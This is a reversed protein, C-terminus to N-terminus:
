KLINWSIKSETDKSKYPKFRNDYQISVSSIEDSSESPGCMLWFGIYNYSSLNHSEVWNCFVEKFSNEQRKLELLINVPINYMKVVVDSGSINYIGELTNYLIDCIKFLDTESFILHTIGISINLPQLGKDDIHLNKPVDQVDLNQRQPEGNQLSYLDAKYRQSPKYVIEQAVPLRWEEGSTFKVNMWEGFAANELNIHTFGQKNKKSLDSAHLAKFYNSYVYQDEFESIIFELYGNKFQNFFKNDAIEFNELNSFININFGYSNGSFNINLLSNIYQMFFDLDIIKFKTIVPSIFIEAVYNTPIQEPVILVFTDENINKIEPQSSYYVGKPLYVINDTTMTKWEGPNSYIQYKIFGSKLEKKINFLGPANQIIDAWQDMDFVAAIENLIKYYDKM